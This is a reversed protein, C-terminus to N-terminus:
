MTVNLWLIDRTIQKFRDDSRILVDKLIGSLNAIAHSNVSTVTDLKKIYTVQQSMSHVIDQQSLQLENLAEHLANTDHITAAGFVAKLVYGGM